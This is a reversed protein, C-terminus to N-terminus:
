QTISEKRTQAPDTQVNPDYQAVMKRLLTNYDEGGRKQSRVLELVESEVPISTDSPM